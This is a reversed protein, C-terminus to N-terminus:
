KDADSGSTLKAAIRFILTNSTRFAASVIEMRSGYCNM